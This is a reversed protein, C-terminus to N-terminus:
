SSSPPLALPNRFHQLNYYPMVLRLFSDRFWTNSHNADMRYAYNFGGIATLNRNNTGMDTRNYMQSNIANNEYNAPSLGYAQLLTVLFRNYHLGVYNNSFRPSAPDANYNDAGGEPFVGRTRDSYDIYNGSSLAGAINGALITPHSAYGHTQGCEYSAHILSNYLYTQGNSPDIAGALNAVLPAFVRSIMYKEKQVIWHWNPQGNTTGFPNHSIEHHWDGTYNLVDAGGTVGSFTEYPMYFGFTFIRQSDCLIAATIMDVLLKSRDAYTPTHDITATSINLSRHSCQSPTPTTTTGSALGRHVDSMKDMANNLATRDQASIYRSNILRQYDELVRSLVDRRPHATPAPTTTGGSEALNGNDFLTNYLTRFNDIRSSAGGSMNRSYGEFGGPAGGFVLRGNPNLTRFNALVSDLTPVRQLGGIPESEMLSGLAAGAGHGFRVPLDLSRIINIYQLHNNLTTGYLPALPTSSSSVFERLAQYRIAPDSGGPSHTLRPQPIATIGGSLRPLWGSNHGVEGESLLAVYRKIGGAGAQAQAARPLLSPLLPIAMLTRGSGQLFM